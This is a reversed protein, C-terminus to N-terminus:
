SSAMRAARARKQRPELAIPSLSDPGGGRWRGRAGGTERAGRLLQQAQASPTEHDCFFFPNPFVSELESAQDIEDACGRIWAIQPTFFSLRCVRPWLHPPLAISLNLVGIISSRVVTRSRSAQARPFSFPRQVRKESTATPFVAPLFPSPRPSLFFQIRPENCHQGLTDMVHPQSLSAVRDRKINVKAQLVIM